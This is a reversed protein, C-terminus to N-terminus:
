IRMQNVKLSRQKEGKASWGVSMLQELEVWETGTTGTEHCKILQQQQQGVKGPNLYDRVTVRLLLM